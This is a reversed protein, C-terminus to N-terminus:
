VLQDNVNMKISNKEFYKTTIANIKYLFFNFKKRKITNAISSYSMQKLWFNGFIYINTM